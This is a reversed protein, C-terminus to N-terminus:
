LLWKFSLACLKRPNKKEQFNGTHLLHYVSCIVLDKWSIGRSTDLCFDSLFTKYFEWSSRWTQTKNRLLKNTGKRKLSFFQLTVLVSTHWPRKEIIKRLLEPILLQKPCSKGIKQLLLCSILSQNFNSFM